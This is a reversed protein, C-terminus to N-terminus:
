VLLMVATWSFLLLHCFQCKSLGIKNPLLAPLLGVLVSLYIHASSYKVPMALPIHFSRKLVTM